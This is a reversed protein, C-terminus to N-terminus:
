FSAEDPKNSKNQDILTLLINLRQAPSLSKYYEKNAEEAEALSKFVRKVKQM